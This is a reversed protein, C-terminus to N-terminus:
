KYAAKTIDFGYGNISDDSTLELTASDGDIIASFSDDNNGSIQEVINGASDKIVLVDYNAESSFKEFYLAFQKAGPVSVSFSGQFKDAYPHQSSVSVPMTPWNYPDNPDPPPVTNTLSAYANAMGASRVKGRLGGLPKATSIIRNKLDAHSIKPEHAKVLAAIGSVYPAAMSTGSWAEYGDVISSYVAVGPAGVHVKSRGYNSFAALQGRNNLAAVSLINPVDFSNPYSPYSDNNSSENGAAAVFLAGAADSRKISEELLESYGGGGWSNSLIDAGNKTAYDIAQIAGELTGSGDGSLFKVGMIKVNWAVGVIGKGDDGKAGIIGSCHSGHGHDDLPDGDNNSFDYGHVDDVYGNNDDDVGPQGNLEAENTWINDALDAHTYQVGTDIVAVVVKSSGTEIDWASEAAVDVGEIGTTGEADALGANKLGWLQGLMPDNPTKNIRYIYNPEVIAVYPNNTLSKLVSKRTEILPKKIVVINRGHLTRLVQANLLSEIKNKNKISVSTKLKVLFEGPVAEAERAHASLSTVLTLIGVAVARGMLRM